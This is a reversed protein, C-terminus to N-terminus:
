HRCPAMKPYSVSLTRTSKTGIGEKNQRYKPPERVTLRLAIALLIGPIAVVLFANRWGFFENVWGGALNGFLIGLPIGLAYIGLASARTEPPFYDAILSHSPPSGGAEGIGVGVRALLLQWYNQALGCLATMASWLLLCIAIINVRSYRDALRAIPIGLTAYLIGFAVGSLAGIQTDSLGLDRKIPEALIALIQRDIFNFVYVLLLAGLVYHTYARSFRHGQTDPQEDREPM